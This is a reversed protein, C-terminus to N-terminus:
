SLTPANYTGNFWATIGPLIAPYAGLLTFEFTGGANTTFTETVNAYNITGFSGGVMDAYVIENGAPNHIILIYESVNGIYHSTFSLKVYARDPFTHNTSSSHQCECSSTSFTFSFATPGIPVAVLGYVALAAVVVAGVVIWFRRSLLLGLMRHPPAKPTPAAAM